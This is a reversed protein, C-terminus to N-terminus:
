SKEFFKIKVFREWGHKQLFRGVWMPKSFYVGGSKLLVSFYPTAKGFLYRISKIDSVKFKADHKKSEPNYFGQVKLKM